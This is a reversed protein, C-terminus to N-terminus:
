LITRTEEVYSIVPFMFPRFPSSTDSFKLVGFSARYEEITQHGLYAQLMDIPPALPIDNLKIKVNHIKKYMLGMYSLSNKYKRSHPNISLCTFIYSKLCPWSCFMAETEFYDTTTIPFNNKTLFSTIQKYKECNKDIINPHYVLPCGIPHNTYSHHCSRCPKDTYVPVVDNASNAFMIPWLKVKMKKSDFFHVVRNGIEDNEHLMDQLNIEKSPKIMEVNANNKHELDGTLKDSKQNVDVTTTVGGFHSCIVDRPSFHNLKLVYVKRKRM